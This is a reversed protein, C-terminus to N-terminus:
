VTLVYSSYMITHIELVCGWLVYDCFKLLSNSYVTVALICPWVVRLVCKYYMIVVGETCM